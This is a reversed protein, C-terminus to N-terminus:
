LIRFGAHLDVRPVSIKGAKIQVFIIWARCRNFRRPFIEQEEAEM